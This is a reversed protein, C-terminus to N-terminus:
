KSFDKLFIEWFQKLIERNKLLMGIERNKEISSPSFNISGVYLYKKDVLISKAHIEPTDIVKVEIGYTQLRDIIEANSAVKKLDPFIIKVKVGANKKEVLIKEIREDSFNHVYMEISDTASQLLSELKNRTMNPSLVINPDYLDQPKGWFDNEFIQLFHSLLAQNQILLFFERNYKFTSYSYNGTSLIVEDDIVMMKTHNLAYNKPNSYVLDVWANMLDNITDRNLSPALYVNKELIVKVDVGNKYADILAKRLRKETFIYMEVYVRSTANWIKQSLEDLLDLDPTQRLTIGDVEQVDDLSFHSEKQLQDIQATKEAYFDQYELSCSSLFYVVSLLFIWIKKLM